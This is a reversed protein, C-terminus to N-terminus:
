GETPGYGIIFTLITQFHNGDTESKTTTPVVGYLNVIESEIVVETVAEAVSKVLDAHQQTTYENCSTMVTVELSGRVLPGGTVAEGSLNLICAPISISAPEHPV